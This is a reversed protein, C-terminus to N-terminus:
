LFALTTFLSCQSKSYVNASITNSHIRKQLWEIHKALSTRTGALLGTIAFKLNM